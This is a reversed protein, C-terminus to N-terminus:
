EANILLFNTNSVLLVNFFSFIIFIFDLKQSWISYRDFIKM